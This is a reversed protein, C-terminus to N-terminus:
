TDSRFIQTKSGFTQTLCRLFIEFPGSRKAFPGLRKEFLGLRPHKSKFNSM